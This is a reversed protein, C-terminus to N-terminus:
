FYIFLINRMRYIYFLFLLYIYERSVRLLDSQVYLVVYLYMVFFYVVLHHIVIFGIDRLCFEM